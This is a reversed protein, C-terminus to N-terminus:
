PLHIVDDKSESTYNLGTFSKKPSKCSFQV